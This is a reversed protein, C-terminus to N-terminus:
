ALVNLQTTASTLQSEVYQREHAVLQTKRAVSRLIGPLPLASLNGDPKIIQRAARERHM